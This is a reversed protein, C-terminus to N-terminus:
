AHASVLVDARVRGPEALAARDPHVLVDVAAFEILAAHRVAAASIVLADARHRALATEVARRRRASRVAGRPACLPAPHRRRTPRCALAGRARPRVEWRM